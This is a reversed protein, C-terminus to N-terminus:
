KARGYARGGRLDTTRRIERRIRVVGIATGIATAGRELAREARVADATGDQDVPMAPDDGTVFGDFLRLPQVDREADHFGVPLVQNRDLAVIQVEGSVRARPRERDGVVALATGFDLARNPNLMGPKM